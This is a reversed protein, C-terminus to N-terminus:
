PMETQRGIVEGMRFNWFYLPEAIQDSLNFEEKALVIDKGM